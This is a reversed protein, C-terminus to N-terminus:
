IDQEQVTTPTQLKGLENEKEPKVRLKTRVTGVRVEYGSVHFLSPEGGLVYFCSQVEGLSWIM